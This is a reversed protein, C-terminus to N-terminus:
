AVGGEAMADSLRGWYTKLRQRAMVGFRKSRFGQDFTKGARLLDDLDHGYTDRRVHPISVIGAINDGNERFYKTREIPTGNVDVGGFFGNKWCFVKAAPFHEVLAALGAVTDQFGASGTVVCHIRVEHGADQLIDVVGNDVMYTCLPLFSAAGNDIVTRDDPGFELLTEIFTDFNRINIEDGDLLEVLRVELAEYRSFTRNVPDTDFCVPAAGQQRIRQALASAVFSKGVGGKGQLIFNHSAM